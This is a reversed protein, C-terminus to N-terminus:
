KCSGRHKYEAEKIAVYGGIASSILAAVLVAIVSAVIVKILASESM